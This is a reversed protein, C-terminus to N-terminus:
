TSEWSRALWTRRAAAPLPTLGEAWDVGEAECWSHGAESLGNKLYYEWFDYAPVPHRRQAQQCSLFIRM